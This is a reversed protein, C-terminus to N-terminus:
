STLAGRESGAERKLRRKRDRHTEDAPPEQVVQVPPVEGQMRADEIAARFKGPRDMTPFHLHTDGRGRLTLKGFGFMRGLISQDVHAGEVSGLTLEDTKTAFFGSKLIVRRNTVAMRTSGLRVMERVFIFVGVLVVGLLLLAVWPWLKQVWHFRGEYVVSEGPALRRTIYSM